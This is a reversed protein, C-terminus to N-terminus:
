RTPIGVLRDQQLRRRISLLSRPGDTASQRERRVVQDEHRVAEVRQSTTV